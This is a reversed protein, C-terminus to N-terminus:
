GEGSFSEDPTMAREHVRDLVLKMSYYILLDKSSFHHQIMGASISAEDAIQQISAKDM